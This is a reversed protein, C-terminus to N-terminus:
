GKAPLAGSATKVRSAAYKSGVLVLVISALVIISLVISVLVIIALVMGYWVQGVVGISDSNVVVTGDLVVVAWYLVVM